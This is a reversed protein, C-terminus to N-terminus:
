SRSRQYKIAKSIKERHEASLKKGKKAASLKARHEESFSRGKNASSIKARTEASCEKGKLSASRKAITEASQKVGTNGGPGGTSKNLLTGGDCQRGWFAILEIECEWAQWEEDFKFRQRRERPPIDPHNNPTYMRGGVGKGVYYASWNEDYYVYCYFKM